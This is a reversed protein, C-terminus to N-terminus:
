LEKLPDVPEGDIRVEFHLHNGTSIGTSGVEGIKTSTTVHQGADCTIRSMHAYLTVRKNGHDIIVTKGYGSKRGTFIVKGEGAAMIATGEPASIDVGTHMKKVGYIPHKRMGFGSTIGGPCPKKFSGTWPKGKYASASNQLERIEARIRKNEEELENIRRLTLDRDENIAKIVLEKEGRRAELVELEKEMEECIVSIDKIQNAIAAQKDELERNTVEADSVLQEDHKLVRQVFFVRDMLDTFDNSSFLLELYSLDGQMYIARARQALNQKYSALQNDLEAQEALLQEHRSNAEDLQTRTREIQQECEEILEDVGAVVDALNSQEQGLQAVREWLRSHEQKNQKIRQERSDAYAVSQAMIVLGFLGILSLTVLWRYKAM